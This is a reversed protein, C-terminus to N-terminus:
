GDDKTDVGAGMVKPPDPYPMSVDCTNPDIGVHYALAMYSKILSKRIRSHSVEIEHSTVGHVLETEITESTPGDFRKRVSEVQELLKKDGESGQLSVSVYGDGMETEVPKRRKERFNGESDMTGEIVEGDSTMFDTLLRNRGAKRLNALYNHDYKFQPQCASALGSDWKTGTRNNCEKFIFGVVQLSSGYTIAEPLIHEKSENIPGDCLWCTDLRYAPAM